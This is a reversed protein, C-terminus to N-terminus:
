AAKPKSRKGQKGKPSAAAKRAKKINAPPPQEEPLRSREALDESSAPNLEWRKNDREEIKETLRLPEGEQYTVGVAEGIEEVIDQDPTPNSGGVTEDGAAAQDWAADIDGGSLVADEPELTDQRAQDHWPVEVPREELEKEPASAEDTEIYRRIVENADEEDKDHERQRDM